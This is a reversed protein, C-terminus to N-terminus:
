VRQDFWTQLIIAAALKDIDAKQTRKKRGQQREQKLFDEAKQSSLREDVMHVPLGFRGHLRNAFKKAAATMEHAEGDMHTPLGVILAAPKWENLIAEVENWDPQRNNCAITTLPSANATLSQGIAIGIRQLGYDFGLFTQIDDPM